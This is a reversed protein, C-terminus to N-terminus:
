MGSRAGSISRSDWASIRATRPARQGQRATTRPRQRPAPISIARAQSKMNAPTPARKASGSILNPANGGTAAAIQKLLDEDLDARIPQYGMLSGAQDIDSSGKGGIGVGAINLMDSPPIFGRGLVHRPVIAFAAGSAAVNSLFKRRSLDNKKNM